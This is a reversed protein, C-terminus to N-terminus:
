GHNEVKRLYADLSDFFSIPQPIEWLLWVGSDGVGVYETDSTRM